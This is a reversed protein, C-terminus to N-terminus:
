DADDDLYEDIDAPEHDNKNDNNKGKRVWEIQDAFILYTLLILRSFVVTFGNVLCTFIFIRIGSVFSQSAWDLMYKKKWESFKAKIIVIKSSAIFFIAKEPKEEDNSNEDQHEMEQIHKDCDHALGEPWAILLLGDSSWLTM